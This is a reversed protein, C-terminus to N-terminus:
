PAPKRRLFGGEAFSLIYKDRGPDLEFDANQQLFARAAALPGPGHEPWVPHGGLNTDEVILSGGPPIFRSYLRLEDLVHQARHLSDLIVFAHRGAALREVEAFTDPATSSGTVYHIRPHQPRNPNGQIDVTIVEGQGMLDFLNAFYLASGGAFSGTEIVLPPRQEFLIEQYVWLDTPTKMLPQGAWTCKTWALSHYWRDHFLKKVLEGGGEKHLRRAGPSFFIELYQRYHEMGTKFDGALFLAEGLVRRAERDGPAAAVNAALRALEDQSELGETM